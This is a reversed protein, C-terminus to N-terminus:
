NLRAGAKGREGKRYLQITMRDPGLITIEADAQIVRRENKGGKSKDMAEAVVKKEGNADDVVTYREVVRPPDDVYRTTEVVKPKHRVIKTTNIAQTKSAARQRLEDILRPDNRTRLAKAAPAPRQGRHRHEAARTEGPRQIVYTGPAVEIAYPQAARPQTAYPYLPPPSQQVSSYYQARAEGGAVAAAVLVFAALKHSLPM